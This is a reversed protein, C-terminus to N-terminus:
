SRRRQDLWPGTLSLLIARTSSSQPVAVSEIWDAYSSVRTRVAMDGYHFAPFDKVNLAFSHIGARYVIWGFTQLCDEVTIERLWCGRMTPPM